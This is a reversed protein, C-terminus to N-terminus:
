KAFQPCYAKAADVVFHDAQVAGLNTQSLVQRAIEPGSHGANLELCVLYGDMVAQQPSDFGIGHDTIAAIFADDATSASAGGATAVALGVAAAGVAM